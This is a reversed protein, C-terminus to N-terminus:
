LSSRWIQLLVMAGMFIATAVGLAGFVSIGFITPPAGTAWLLASGLLLASTMIGINLRNMPREMGHQQVHIQLEGRQARELLAVMDRPYTTILREWDRYTRLLSRQLRAPSFRRMAIDTGYSRLSEALNFNPDLLRATGETQVIVLLLMNVRAPVRLHHRRIIGFMVEFASGIDIGNPSDGFEAIFEAVDAQYESRNLDPPAECLDILEDTLMQADGTLFATVIGIFEEQTQEDVRGVKGCDLMGVREGVVVFVNGPHPDAHYFGDRFIMDLMVNVFRQAFATKDVDNATMRADDAISYGDLREMTLVRHSSEDPYAIPFHVGPDDKFNATFQLLNNLETTFDLERLLSRRFEAVTATPKYMAVEKSNQEAMKALTTLLSLDDRM